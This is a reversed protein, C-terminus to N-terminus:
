LSNPYLIQFSISRSFIVDNASNNSRARSFTLASFSMIDLSCADRLCSFRGCQLNQLFKLYVVSSHLLRLFFFSSFGFVDFLFFLFALIRRVFLRDVGGYRAETTSVGTIEAFVTWFAIFGVFITFAFFLGIKAEHIRFFPDSICAIYPFHDTRLTSISSAFLVPNISICFHADSSM